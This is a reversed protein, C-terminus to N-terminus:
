SVSNGAMQIEDEAFETNQKMVCKLIPNSKKINIEKEIEQITYISISSTVCGNFM